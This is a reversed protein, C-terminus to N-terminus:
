RLCVCLSLCMCSRVCVCAEEHECLAFVCVSVSGCVAEREHQQAARRLGAPRDSDMALSFFSGVSPSLLGRTDTPRPDKRTQLQTGAAVGWRLCCEVLLVQCCDEGRPTPPPPPQSACISSIDPPSRLQWPFWCSPWMGWTLCWPLPAPLLTEGM